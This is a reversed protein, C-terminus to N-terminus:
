KGRVRDFEQEAHLESYYERVDQEILHPLEKIFIVIQEDQYHYTSVLTLFLDRIKQKVGEDFKNPIANGEFCGTNYLISKDKGVVFKNILQNTKHLRKEVEAQSTGNFSLEIKATFKRNKMGCYCQNLASYDKNCFECIKVKDKGQEYEKVIDEAHSLEARFGDQSIDSSPEGYKYADKLIKRAQKVKEPEEKNMREIMKEGMKSM